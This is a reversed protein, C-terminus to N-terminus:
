QKVVNMSMRQGKPNTLQLIYTGVTLEQTNIIKENNNAVGSYVLQGLIDFIKVQTGTSIGTIFLANSMPNPYVSINPFAALNCVHLPPLTTIYKCYTGSDCGYVTLCVKIIGTDTYSHSPNLTTSSSGDGFNWRVSDPTNSGTYTFTVNDPVHMSDGSVTFMPTPETAITCNCNYGYKAFWFNQIHFPSHYAPLNNVTISDEMIGGLYLNNDNDSTIAYGFHYRGEGAFQSWNLLNASSDWIFLIPNSVAGTSVFKFIDTGHKSDNHIFGTVAVHGNPQTGVAYFGIGNAVLDYYWKLHGNTDLRYLVTLGDGDPVGVSDGGFNSPSTGFLTTYIGGYNDYAIGTFWDNGAWATDNWLQTGNSNFAAVYPIPTAYSSSPLVNLGLAAYAVGSQQNIAVFDMEETSDIPFRIASLLNGATDYKLDYTGETTFEGPRVELNSRLVPYFHAYGQGDIAFPNSFQSNVGTAIYSYASDGGIFRVWKFNGLTDFRVVCEQMYGAHILTDNGIYIDGGILVGAFYIGGNAYGLGYSNDEQESQLMKAWRMIGNCTYSALLIRPRYGGAPYASSARYFTDATINDDDVVATIYVNKNADTCIQRVRNSTPG